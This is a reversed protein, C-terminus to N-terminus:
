QFTVTVFTDAKNNRELLINYAKQKNVPHYAGKSYNFIISPSHPPSSNSASLVKISAVVTVDLALVLSPNHLM